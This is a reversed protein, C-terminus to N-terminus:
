KIPCVGELNAVILRFEELSGNTKLRNARNTVVQINGRVYGLKPIIKDLSPTYETGAGFPIKLIPCLAPICIDAINIDFPIGQTTARRKARYYLKYEATEKAYDAKAIPKRCENCHSYYYQEGNRWGNKPFDKLLKVGGCLSCGKYGAPTGKNARTLHNGRVPTGRAM